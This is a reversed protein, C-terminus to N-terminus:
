PPKNPARSFIIIVSILFSKPKPYLSQGGWLDCTGLSLTYSKHPQPQYSATPNGWLHYLFWTPSSFLPFAKSVLIFLQEDKRHHLPVHFASHLSLHMHDPAFVLSHVRPLLEQLVLCLLVHRYAWYKPLQLLQVLVTLEIGAQSVYQLGLQFWGFLLDWMCSACLTLYVTGCGCPM